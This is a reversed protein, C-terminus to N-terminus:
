REDNGLSGGSFDDPELIRECTPCFGDEDFDCEHDLEEDSQDEPSGGKELIEREGDEGM